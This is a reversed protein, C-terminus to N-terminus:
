DKQLDNKYLDFLFYKTLEPTQSLCYLGSSLFCTNGLNQLTSLCPKSPLTTSTLSSLTIQETLKVTAKNLSKFTWQNQKMVEVM